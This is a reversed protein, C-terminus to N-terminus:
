VNFGWRSASAFTEHQIIPKPTTPDQYKHNISISMRFALIIESNPLSHQMDEIIRTRSLMMEPWGFGSKGRAEDNGLGRALGFDCIKLDCNKNVQSM